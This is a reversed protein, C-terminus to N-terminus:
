TVYSIIDGTIDTVIKKRVFAFQSTWRILALTNLCKAAHAKPCLRSYNFLVKIIHAYNLCKYGLVLAKLLMKPFFIFTYHKVPFETQM